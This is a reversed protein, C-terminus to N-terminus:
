QYVIRYGERSAVVGDGFMGAGHKMQAILHLDRSSTDDSLCTSHLARHTYREM